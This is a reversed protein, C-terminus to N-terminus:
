LTYAGKCSTICIGGGSVQELDRDLVEDSVEQVPKTTEAAKEFKKEDAM